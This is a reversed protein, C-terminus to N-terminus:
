QVLETRNLLVDCSEFILSKPVIFFSIKIPMKTEKNAVAPPQKKYISYKELNLKVSVNCNICSPLKYPLIKDIAAMGLKNTNKTKILFFCSLLAFPTKIVVM